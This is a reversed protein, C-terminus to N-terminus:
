LTDRYESAWQSDNRMLAAAVGKAGTSAGSQQLAPFGFGDAKGSFIQYVPKDTKPMKGIMSQHASSSRGTYAIPIAIVEDVDAQQILAYGKVGGMGGSSETNVLSDEGLRLFGPIVRGDSILGFNAEVHVGVHKAGMIDTDKIQVSLQDAPLGIAKVLEEVYKKTDAERTSQDKSAAFRASQDCVFGLKEKYYFSLGANVLLLISCVVGITVFVMGAAGEAILSGRQNRAVGARIARSISGSRLRKVAANATQNNTM